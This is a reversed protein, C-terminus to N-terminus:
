IAVVGLFLRSFIRLIELGGKATAAIPHELWYTAEIDKGSDNIFNQFDRLFSHSDSDKQLLVSYRSVRKTDLIEQATSLPLILLSDNYERLQFDMLGTLPLDMANVQIHETTVSV